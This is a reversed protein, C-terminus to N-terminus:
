AQSCTAPSTPTGPAPTTGTALKWAGHRDAQREEGLRAKSPLQLKPGQGSGYLASRFHTSSHCCGTESRRSDVEVPVVKTIETETVVEVQKTVERVITEPEATTTSGCAVAFVIALVLPFIVLIRSTRFWPRLM